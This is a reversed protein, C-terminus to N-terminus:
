SVSAPDSAPRWMTWVAWLLGCFVILLPTLVIAAFKIKSSADDVARKVTSYALLIKGDLAVNYVIGRGSRILIEMRHPKGDSFADAPLVCPITVNTTGSDSRLSVSQDSSFTRRSPHTCSTWRAVPGEVRQLQDIPPSGRRAYRIDQVSTSAVMWIMFGIIVLMLVGVIKGTYNKSTASRVAQDRVTTNNM